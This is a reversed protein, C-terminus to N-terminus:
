VVVNPKFLFEKVEKFELCLPLLNACVISFSAFHWLFLCCFYTFHYLSSNFPTQFFCLSEIILTESILGPLKTVLSLIVLYVGEDIAVDFSWLMFNYRTTALM